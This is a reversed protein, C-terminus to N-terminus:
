AEAKPEHKPSRKKKPPPKPASRKKAGRRGRKPAGARERILAMADELSFAALDAGRPLNANTEGDTVYIGYKGDFVRIAKEINETWEKLPVRVITQRGRRVKPARLLAMAGELTLAAGDRWAGVNRTEKGCRVYAGYRGLHVFVEENTDPNTGLLKPFGLLIDLDAQSPAPVDEPLSSRRPKSESAKEDETQEVELYAGFRGAMLFVPRGSKPDTGVTRPGQSKIRILELAKELTLDAPLIDDPLSATNGKGGEGRQVFTGFRGVRVVVINGTEPEEGLRIAPFAINPTEIEVRRVLGPHKPTGKYFEKLHAVHDRKGDAIEDLEDEMKATFQLDLLEGFHKELLDTVAFATFTPVLENNNKFCYGRDQITSIISAYTSPRGVGAEELRKVLTAETLRAPPKTTHPQPIVEQPELEQGVEFSPLINERNELEAEPDDSGEVYARHFGPFVMQKGSASFRLTKESASVEVQVQTRQIRAAVMQCALTRKWILEYVRFQDPDLRKRIDEPKRSLDTPRIAEHAEQASRSKTKYRVAEEPLYDEGYLTKIVERAEKLARESLTLSDTRMYTILGIREGDLDVGEYLQQAIQMTRKSSFRFQRNAEQQLTSTMFPVPPKETDPRTEINSVKWPKAVLAAEALAKAATEDLLVTDKDVFAGTTSDFSKGSALRKDDIHTLRVEFKELKALLDWYTATRFLAREKERDVLLRVAVSQVRGASLKPAVKKWLVPSLTYGFLRDLIRRAEQARVLPEHIDRANAIAEKLAEPTIEHFVIRKVSFSKKLKLLQLIHWSISEGERDEDTALLLADSHKIAKKLADVHKKKDSPVVYLPEFDHDVNVGLKSWKHKKMDAPIEDAREPLDRVHGFSATVEYGKGLYGAITKAKAPSEVVVLTTM